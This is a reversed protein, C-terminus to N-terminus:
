EKEVIQFEFRKQYPKLFSSVKMMDSKEFDSGIMMEISKSTFLAGCRMVEPSNVGHLKV